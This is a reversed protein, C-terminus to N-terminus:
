GDEATRPSGVGYQAPSWPTSSATAADAEAEALAHETLRRGPILMTASVIGMVVFVSRLGLSQGLVGGIAAGLPRTGWAVLRYASNMRGLLHDPTVRQRFSVTTVNWLMNMIGATFLVLAIIVVNSTLAPATVYAIMGFLSLRITRARGIRRQVSEAVLGGILGGAALTAFLLGFAPETLEMASGTGVAFLVFVAFVASSALNNMGVMLAM